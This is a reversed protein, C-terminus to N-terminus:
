FQQTSSATFKQQRAKRHPNTAENRQTIKQILVDVEKVHQCVSLLVGDERM